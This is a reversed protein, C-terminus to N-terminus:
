VTEQHASSVHEFLLGQSAFKRKITGEQQNRARNLYQEIDKQSFRLNRGIKFSKLEGKKLLESVTSKSVHLIDAVEKTSYIQDEKM